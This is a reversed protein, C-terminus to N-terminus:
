KERAGVHVQGSEVQEPRHGRGRRRPHHRFPEAGRGALCARQEVRDRGRAGFYQWSRALTHTTCAGYLEGKELHDGWQRERLLYRPNNPGSTIEYKADWVKAYPAQTKIKGDYMGLLIMVNVIGQMGIDIMEQGHYMFDAGGGLRLASPRSAAGVCRFRTCRATGRRDRCFVDKLGYALAMDKSKAIVEPTLDPNDEYISYWVFADPRASHIDVWYDAKYVFRTSTPTPSGSPLPATRDGEKQRNLDKSDWMVERQGFEFGSTNVVPVAILTGMKIDKPEITRLLQGICVTGINEDGHLAADVLLM